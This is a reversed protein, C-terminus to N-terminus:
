SCAARCWPTGAAAFYPGLNAARVHEFMGVSAVADFPGLEAVDRYDRVEVRARHELGLLAARRSAETAQRESLTVGIAEVRYREAAFLILSGWGCGIDLLRQGPRLDLKRCILDLKAEQAADLDAAPSDQRQFYACSYTLRRDLWLRYFAEGVDYHFRVAELDRARSHRRGRLRALRSLPPASVRGRGLELGYRV